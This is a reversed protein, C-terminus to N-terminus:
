AHTYSPCLSRSPSGSLRSPHGSLLWPSPSPFRAAPVGVAFALLSRPCTLLAAICKKHPFPPRADGRRPPTAKPWRGGKQPKQPDIPMAGTKPKPTPIRITHLFSLLSGLYLSQRAALKSVNRPPPLSSSSFLSLSLCAWACRAIVCLVGLGASSALFSVFLHHHHLLFLPFPFFRLRALRKTPRQNNRKPGRQRLFLSLLVLLRAFM